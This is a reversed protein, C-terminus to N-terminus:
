APSRRVLWSRGTREGCSKPLWAGRKIGSRRDSKGVVTAMTGAIVAIAALSASQKAPTSNATRAAIVEATMRRTM